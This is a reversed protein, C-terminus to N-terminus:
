QFVLPYVEQKMYEYVCRENLCGTWKARWKHMSSFVESDDVFEIFGM